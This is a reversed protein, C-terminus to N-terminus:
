GGIEITAIDMDNLLKIYRDRIDILEPSHDGLLKIHDDVKNKMAKLGNYNVSRIEKILREISEAEAISKNNLEQLEKNLKENRKIGNLNIIIMLLGIVILIISAIIM